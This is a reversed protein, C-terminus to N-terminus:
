REDHVALDERAARQLRARSDAIGALGAADPGPHAPAREGAREAGFVDPEVRHLHELEAVAVVDPGLPEFAAQPLDADGGVAGDDAARAPEPAGCTLHGLQSEARVDRACRVDEQRELDDLVLNWLPAATFGRTRVSNNHAASMPGTAAARASTTVSHFAAARSAMRASFVGGGGAALHSAIRWMAIESAISPMALDPSGYKTRLATGALPETSAAALAAACSESAVSKGASAWFKWSSRAASRACIGSPGALRPPISHPWYTARWIRARLAKSLASATM